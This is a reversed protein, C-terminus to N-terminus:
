KSEIEKAQGSYIRLCGAMRSVPPSDVRLFRLHHSLIAYRVVFLYCCLLVYVVILSTFFFFHKPGEGTRLVKVALLLFERYWNFYFM